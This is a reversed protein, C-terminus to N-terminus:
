EVVVRGSMPAYKDRRLLVSRLLVGGIYYDAYGESCYGDSGNSIRLFGRGPPVIYSGDNEIIEDTHAVVEKIESRLSIRLGKDLPKGFIEVSLRLGDARAAVYLPYGTNNKIKLDNYESVMADFSPRVYGVASSHRKVHVIELDAYLAANYVTTSVQCIGGGIGDVLRGGFIIPASSFGREATRGGVVANFSFVVGDGIVSGNIYRAALEINKKRAVGSNGYGTSFKARLRTIEKLSKITEEPEFAATKLVIRAVRDKQGGVLRAAASVVAAAVADADLYRGNEGEIYEFKENEDPKFVVRAARPPKGYAASMREMDSAFGCFMMDAAQAPSYGAERLGDFIRLSEAGTAAGYNCLYEASAAYVGREDYYKVALRRPVPYLAAGSFVCAASLFLRMFAASIKFAM